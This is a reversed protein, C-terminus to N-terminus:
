ADDAFPGGGGKRRAAQRPVQFHIEGCGFVSCRGAYLWCERHHPTKCRQCFVLDGIIEEGCVQCTVNELPQAIQGDLFEIGETASLLMQDYLELSGGVFEFLEPVRQLATWKSIRLLGRNLEVLLPGPRSLRRLQEIRHRVVQNMMGAMLSRDSTRVSYREDFERLGSHWHTLGDHSTLHAPRPPHSILCSFSADPWGIQVQTLPGRQGPESGHPFVGVLVGVTRYQFSVRPHGFWGTRHVMGRYRSALAECAKACRAASRTGGVSFGALMILIAFVMLAFIFCQM